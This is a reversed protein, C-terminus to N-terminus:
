FAKSGRSRHKLKKENKSIFPHFDYKKMKQKLKKENKCFQVTM